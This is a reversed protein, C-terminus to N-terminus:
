TIRVFARVDPLLASQLGAPFPGIATQGTNTTHGQM